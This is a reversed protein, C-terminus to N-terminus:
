FNDPRLYILACWPSAVNLSKVNEAFGFECFTLNLIYEDLM